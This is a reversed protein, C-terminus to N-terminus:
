DEWILRPKKGVSVERSHGFGHIEDATPLNLKKWPM